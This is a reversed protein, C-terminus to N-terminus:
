RSYLRKEIFGIEGFTKLNWAAKTQILYCRMLVYRWVKSQHLDPFIHWMMACDSLIGLRLHDNVAANNSMVRVKGFFLQFKSGVEGNRQSSKPDSLNFL